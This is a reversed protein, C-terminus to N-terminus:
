AITLEAFMEQSELAAGPVASATMFCKFTLGLVIKTLGSLNVQSGVM